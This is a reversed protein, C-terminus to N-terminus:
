ASAAAAHTTSSVASKKRQQNRRAHLGLTPPRAQATAKSKPSKMEKAIAAALRQAAVKLDFGAVPRVKAADWHRQMRTFRANLEKTKLFEVLRSFEKGSAEGSLYRTALLDFVKLPVSPM